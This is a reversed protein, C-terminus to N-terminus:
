EKRWQARKFYLHANGHGHVVTVLEWGEDGKSSLAEVIWHSEAMVEVHAYEYKTPMTAGTNM